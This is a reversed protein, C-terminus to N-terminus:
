RSDTTRVNSIGIITTGKAKAKDRPDVIITTKKVIPTRGKRM